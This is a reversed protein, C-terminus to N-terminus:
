NATFSLPAGPLRKGSGKIVFNMARWLSSVDKSNKVLRDFLSKKAQRVMSKVKNRMTKYELFRKEKKLKDRSSMANIIDTSLWPPMTPHKVRKRRLPAHKNLVTTFLNYWIDLAENPDSTSFVSSFEVRGLDSLFADEEFHKIIQMNYM